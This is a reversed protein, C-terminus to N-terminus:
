EEIWSVGKTFCSAAFPIEMGRGIGDDYDLLGVSRGVRSAARSDRRVYREPRRM